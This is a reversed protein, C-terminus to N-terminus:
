MIGLFFVGDLPFAAPSQESYPFPNLPSAITGVEPTREPSYSRWITIALRVDMRATLFVVNKISAERQYGRTTRYREKIWWGTLRETTNNTGDLDGRRQYLTLRKWNDWLRTGLMRM